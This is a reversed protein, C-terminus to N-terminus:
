KKGGMIEKNIENMISQDFHFTRVGERNRKKIRRNYRNKIRIIEKIEDETFKHSGKHESLMKRIKDDSYKSFFDVSYRQYKKPLVHELSISEQWEDSRQEETKIVM